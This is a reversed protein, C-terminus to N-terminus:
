HLTKIEAMMLTYRGKATKMAQKDVGNAFQERIPAPLAKFEKLAQKNIFRFEKM